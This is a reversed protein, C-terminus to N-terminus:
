DQGVLTTILAAAKTLAEHYEATPVSDAVIGGGAQFYIEDGKIVFTRITISTDMDGNFGIYGISGCYPGRQTGELEAIIAMARVKPAGTISGGPFTAKLLDLADHEPKLQGTIVSVLHHVTPYSEIGCLKTVKVSYDDCVKSIDNRLLDVIMINEARDKESTLLDNVMLQDAIPGAVRKRTGKIPRTEIYRASLQLFREPSSSLLTVSPFNLYASFPAPNLQRLKEYVAMSSYNGPFKTNFCQSVNVQFVDGADIYDIVRHVM